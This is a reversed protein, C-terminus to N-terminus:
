GSAGPAARRRAHEARQAREDAGLHRGLRDLEDRSCSAGEEAADYDHVCEAGSPALDRERRIARRIARHRDDRGGLEASGQGTAGRREDHVHARWGLGPGDRMGDAPREVLDLRPLLRGFGHPTREDLPALDDHVAGEPHPRAARGLHEAPARLPASM